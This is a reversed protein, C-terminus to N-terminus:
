CPLNRVAYIERGAMSMILPLFEKKIIASRGDIFLILLVKILEKIRNNYIGSEKKNIM